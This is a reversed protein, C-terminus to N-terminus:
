VVECSVRESSHFYGGSKGNVSKYQIFECTGASHVDDVLDLASHVLDVVSFRVNRCTM